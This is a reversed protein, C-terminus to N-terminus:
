SLLRSPPSTVTKLVMGCRMSTTNRGSGLSLTIQTRWMTQFDAGRLRCLTYWYARPITISPKYGVRFIEAIKGRNKLIIPVCFMIPKGVDHEFLKPHTHTPAPFAASTAPDNFTPPPLVAEPQSFSFATLASTDHSSGGSLDGLDPTASSSDTTDQRSMTAAVPTVPVRLDELQTGTSPPNQTPPPPPVCFATNPQTPAPPPPLQPYMPPRQFWMVMLDYARRLDEVTPSQVTSYPGSHFPSWPPQQSHTMTGVETSQSMPFPSFMNTPQVPQSNYPSFQNTPPLQPTQQQQLMVSDPSWYSPTPTCPPQSSPPVIGASGQSYRSPSSLGHFRSEPTPRPTQLQPNSPPPPPVYGFNSNINDPTVRCDGWNSPEVLPHGAYLSKNVWSYHLVIKSAAERLLDPAGPLEPDILVISTDEVEDM